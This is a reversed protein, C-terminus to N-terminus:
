LGEKEKHVGVVMESARLEGLEDAVEDYLKAMFEEIAANIAWPSLSAVGGYEIVHKGLYGDKRKWRIVSGNHLLKRPNVTVDIEPSALSGRVDMTVDVKGDTRPKPKKKRKVKNSSRPKPDTKKEPLQPRVLYLGTGHVRGMSSTSRGM